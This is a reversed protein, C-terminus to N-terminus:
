ETARCVSHNILIILSSSWDSVALLLNGGRKGEKDYKDERGEKTKAEDIENGTETDLKRLIM